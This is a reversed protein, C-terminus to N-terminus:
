QLLMKQPNEILEKVKKLFTVAERGDILRHDYTLALYMMPRIVIEDKGQANTVVVPRKNTAHMGLIASQPPNIIPTGMLSGFVGGNSITFTGGQMDPITIKNERGKKGLEALDRELEAINKGECNRVVPVVLGNPTAVAVSIDVYDRYVIDEGDIVANVAPMQKLAISSAKMFAGMFGLKVGHQEEFSKKSENRLEMLASMDVENFTTLMAYSNQAEKLRQAIRMRMRSMPVRQEGGVTATAGVPVKPLTQPAQQQQQQPAAAPKVEQKVPEPAAAAAAPAATAKSADAGADFEVLMSGVEVTDGVKANYKKVIGAEPARVEVNVKDTELVVLVDDVNAFQGPQKAFELIKGDRISDGMEPVNILKTAYFRKNNGNNNNNNNFLLTSTHQQNVAATAATFKYNKHHCSAVCGHVNRAAVVSQTATTTTTTSRSKILTNILVRSTSRQM